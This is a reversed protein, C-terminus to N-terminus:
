CSFSLYWERISLCGSLGKVKLHSAVERATWGWITQLTTQIILLQEYLSTKIKLLYSVTHINLFEDWLCASTKLCEINLILVDVDRSTFSTVSAAFCSRVGEQLPFLYKYRCVSRVFHYCKKCKLNVM